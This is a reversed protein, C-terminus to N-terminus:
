KKWPMDPFKSPTKYTAPKPTAMRLDSETNSSEDSKPLAPPAGSDSKWSAIKAQLGHHEAKEKNGMKVYFLSLNTHVMADNPRLGEAQLGLKLAEELNGLRCHTMSLATLADFHQPHSKLVADLLEVAKSYDAQSFAFMADDLEPIENTEGMSIGFYPLGGQGALTEFSNIHIWIKFRLLM